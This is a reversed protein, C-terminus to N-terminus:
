ANNKFIHNPIIYFGKKVLQQEVKQIWLQILMNDLELLAHHELHVRRPFKMLYSEQLYKSAYGAFGIISIITKQGYKIKNVTVLCYEQGPPLELEGDLSFVLGIASTSDLVLRMDYFERCNELIEPVNILIDGPLDLQRAIYWINSVSEAILLQRNSFSGVSSIDMRLLFVGREYIEVFGGETKCTELINVLRWNNAIESLKRLNHDVPIHFNVQIQQEHGKIVFEAVETDIRVKRYEAPFTEGPFIEEPTFLKGIFSSQMMGSSDRFVVEIPRGIQTRNLIRIFGDGEEHIKAPIGFRINEEIVLKSIPIEDILGVAFDVQQERLNDYIKMQCLSFRALFPTNIGIEKRLRDKELIYTGFDNGIHNQIASQLGKGDLSMLRNEEKWVLDLTKKQLSAPANPSIQRLRKMVNSIVTEDVAVMYAQEPDTNNNGYDIILFFAPLPSFVLKMWNSLPLSLRNKATGVGKVQVFCEIRPQILDLPSDGPLVEPFQLIFDWGERDSFSPNATINVEGCWKRVQAEAMDGINRAM